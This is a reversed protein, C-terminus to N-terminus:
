LKCNVEHGHVEKNGAEDEAWAKIKMQASGTLRVTAEWEGSSSELLTATEGNVHVTKVKGNDITVGRVKIRGDDLKIVQTIVTAPPLDDVPDLVKPWPIDKVEAVRSEDGTLGLEEKYKSGDDILDKARTSVVKADRGEGYWDHIYIPVGKPTTPQPRPGGGLNVLARKGNDKREIVKVNRFHSEATGPPNDDSIQILPMGSMGHGAFTLGDVVLVGYQISFDDHGRNFPEAENGPSSRSIVMDKYYHRDYNPHYVGYVTQHLKMNEVLACPSMPRFGYHVEWIKMNRIVFPHKDDPGVRDVGEGLNFGYLGDCHAENDDFRVFPLTRIDVPKDSGDPQMINLKPDFTSGKIAEFRYGYLGNECTVNRTFSNQSNAWWFGAGQNGDFPLAQKPLPKGKQAQVALNRDLMNYVETGDELYFGHGTSQYGVCDRVVLYNTGHITLWRNGSDWISAGTVYSGRMTDGCLHYHLAYRGLVGPKGLHRFEAYSISGTSSRHYMTHGRWEAEASLASGKSTGPSSSGKEEGPATAPVVSEVVVNRSLNAIEARYDGTGAHDYDVAASLTIKTGDIATINREETSFKGNRDGIDRTLSSATIIVRDGPQWGNAPDALTVTSGGKKLTDGLKVWTHKIPAGHFDMRGGCCVIAPCSKPDLGEVAALRIVATKGAPIPREPTGVELAGRITSDTEGGHACDFGDESFDDSTQIKLLGVVLRTNKDRSFTLTGAVNIARIVDDAEIDYTVTHGALILVRADKAPVKGGDWTGPASWAGSRASRIVDPYTKDAKKEDALATTALALCLLAL